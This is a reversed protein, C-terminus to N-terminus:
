ADREEIEIVEVEPYSRKATEVCGECRYRGPGEFMPVIVEHTAKEKNCCECMM